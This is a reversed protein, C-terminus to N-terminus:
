ADAAEREIARCEAAIRSAITKAERCLAKKGRRTAQQASELVADLEGAEARLEKITKAM